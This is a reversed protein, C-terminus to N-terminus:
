PGYKRRYRPLMSDNGLLGGQHLYMLRIGPEAALLGEVVLWGLPDYLLEFEIGTACAQKWMRYYEPYLKGFHYKKALPVIRPHFETEPCLQSFQLRLYDEGGVVACTLVEIDAQVNMFYKNLFLATTGTGSPLFLKLERIGQAQVWTVIEQGLQSVGYEAYGCRGGEPVFLIDEHGPLVHGAIYEACGLGATSALPDLAVINAGMALAAAYNGCPQQRLQAAIHDVYYDLQWGKLRALVSLSYLSNAQPSGHGVLKTIGPFEHALFYAFKRAKNGSFGSPCGAVTADPHALHLLDDRKVYVQKGNFSVTDVPSPTQM